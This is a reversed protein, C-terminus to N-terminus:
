RYTLDHKKWKYDGAFTSYAAVDPVGCRSKKMVDLTEENLKGTVTLGFFQQMEKLRLSM